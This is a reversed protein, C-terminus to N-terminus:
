SPHGFHMHLKVLLVTLGTFVIGAIGWRLATKAPSWIQAAKLADVDDRLEQLQQELRHIKASSEEAM